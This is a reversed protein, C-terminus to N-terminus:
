ALYEKLIKRIEVGGIENASHVYVKVDFDKNILTKLYNACHIGCKNKFNQWEYIGTKITDKIYHKSHELHLDCDFSVADPIGNEKIAEVFEEYNRVIKWDNDSIGSYDRLYKLEKLLFADKPM